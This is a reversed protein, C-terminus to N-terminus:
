KESIVSAIRKYLTCTTAILGMGGSTPFILPSFSDHQVERIRSKHERNKEQENERYCQDLSSNHHCFAFPNFFELMLYLMRDIM